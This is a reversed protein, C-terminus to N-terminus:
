ALCIFPATRATTAGSACTAISSLNYLLPGKMGAVWVSSALTFQSASWVSATTAFSGASVNWYLATDSQTANSALNVGATVAFPKENAAYDLMWFYQGDAIATDAAAWGAFYLQPTNVAAANIKVTHGITSATSWELAAGVTAIAGSAKVYRYKRWAPALDTGVNLTLVRGLLGKAYPTTDVSAGITGGSLYVVQELNATM